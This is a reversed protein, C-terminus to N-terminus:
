MKLPDFGFLYKRRSEEFGELKYMPWEIGAIDIFMGRKALIRSANGKEPNIYNLAIRKLTDVTSQNM